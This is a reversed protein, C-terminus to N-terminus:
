AWTTAPVLCLLADLQHMTRDGHRLPLPTRNPLTSKGTPGRVNQLSFKLNSIQTYAQMLRMLLLPFLPNDLFYYSSKPVVCTGRRSTRSSLPPRANAPSYFSSNTPSNTYAYTLSAGSTSERAWFTRPRTSSTFRISHRHDNSRKNHQVAVTFKRDGDLAPSGHKAPRRHNMTSSFVAVYFPSTLQHNYHIKHSTYYTSYSLRGIYKYLRSYGCRHTNM